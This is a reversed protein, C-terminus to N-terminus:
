EGDSRGPTPKSNTECLPHLFCSIEPLFLLHSTSCAPDGLIWVYRMVRITLREPNTIATCATLHLLLSCSQLTLSKAMLERGTGQFPQMKPASIKKTSSHTETSLRSSNQWPISITIGLHIPKAHTMEGFLEKFLVQLWAVSWCYAYILSPCGCITWILLWFNLHKLFAQEFRKLRCFQPPFRM